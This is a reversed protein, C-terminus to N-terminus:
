LTRSIFGCSRIVDRRFMFTQILNGSCKYENTSSEEVVAEEVMEIPEAVAPEEVVDIKDLRAYKNEWDQAKRIAKQWDEKTIKAMEDKTLLWVGNLSQSNATNRRRVRNKIFAWIVEPFMIYHFCYSVFCNFSLHCIQYHNEM